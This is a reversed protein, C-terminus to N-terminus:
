DFCGMSLVYMIDLVAVSLPGTSLYDQVTYDTTHHTSLSNLIEVNTCLIMNISLIILVKISVLIDVDACLIM